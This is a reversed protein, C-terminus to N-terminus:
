PLNKGIAVEDLRLVGAVQTNAISQSRLALWVRQQPCDEPIELTENVRTWANRVGGSLELQALEEGSSCALMMTFPRSANTRDDFAASLIYRGPALALRQAPARLTIARGNFDIRLSQRGSAAQGQELSLDVGTGSDWSWAFEGVVPEAEEFGGDFVNDALVREEAGLTALWEVRADHARGARSLADILASREATTLQRHTSIDEVFAAASDPDVAKDRLAAMMGGSWPPKGAVINAVVPRLRADELAPALAGLLPTALDPAVRLIADLHQSGEEVSGRQFAIDMLFAHAQWDRPDRRVAIGYLTRARVSEGRQAASMGLVRFAAGDIPRSQLAQRAHAEMVAPDGNVGEDALIRDPGLPPGFETDVRLLSWGCLAFLAAAMSGAVIRGPSATLM